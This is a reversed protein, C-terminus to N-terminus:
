EDSKEVSIQSGDILSYRTTIKVDDNSDSEDIALVFDGNATSEYGWSLTWLENSVTHTILEGSDDYTAFKKVEMNEDFWEICNRQDEEQFFYSSKKAYGDKDYESIESAFGEHDYYTSKIQKNWGDNWKYVTENALLKGEEDHFNRDIYTHDDLYEGETVYCSGDAAYTISRQYQWTQSDFEKHWNDKENAYYKMVGDYMLRGEANYARTHETLGDESWEIEEISEFMPDEIHHDIRETHKAGSEYYTFTHERIVEGDDNYYTKSIVNGKSDYEIDCNPEGFLGCATIEFLFIVLLFLTLTKKM